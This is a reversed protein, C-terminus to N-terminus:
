NVQEIVARVFDEAAAPGQATIINKRVLVPSDNYVAGERELDKKNEPYCAAEKEYLIGASALVVPAGCIASVIKGANYFANVLTHLNQNGWYRKIGGGGIIVLASFNNARMNFFSVDPRVKMGKNGTCLSNSDSAIFVKFGEREFITKVTLYEQENFDDAALVLLVSKKILNETM